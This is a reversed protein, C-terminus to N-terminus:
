RRVVLESMFLSVHGRQPCLARNERSRSAPFFLHDPSHGFQPFDDSMTLGRNTRNRPHCAISTRLSSCATSILAKRAL